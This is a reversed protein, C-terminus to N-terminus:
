WPKVQVLATYHEGDARRVDHFMFGPPPPVSGDYGHEPCHDLGPVCSSHDDNCVSDM